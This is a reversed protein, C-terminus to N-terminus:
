KADKPPTRGCRKCDDCGCKPMPIFGASLLKETGEEKTGEYEYASEMCECFGDPMKPHIDDDLHHNKDWFDKPCVYFVPIDPDGDPGEYLKFYFAEKSEESDGFRVSLGGDMETVFAWVGPVDEAQFARVIGEEENGRKWKRKWKGPRERNIEAVCDSTSM